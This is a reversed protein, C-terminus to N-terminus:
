MCPALSRALHHKKAMRAASSFSVNVESSRYDCAALYITIQSNKANIFLSRLGAQNRLM